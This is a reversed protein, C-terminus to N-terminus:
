EWTEVTRDRARRRNLLLQDWWVAAYDSFEVAALKVKKEESYNHCAFIMDVKREWELYAEADNRGQFSPIKMKISGINREVKEVETEDRGREVRGRLGGRNRGRDGREGRGYNRVEYWGREDDEEYDAVEEEFNQLNRATTSARGRPASNAPSEQLARILRDQREFKDSVERFMNEIRLFQSQMAELTFFTMNQRDNDSGRGESSKGDGNGNKDNTKSMTHIQLFFTLFSRM